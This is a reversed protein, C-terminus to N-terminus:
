PTLTSDTNVSGTIEARDELRLAIAREIAERRKASWNALSTELGSRYQEVQGLIEAEGASKEANLMATIESRRKVKFANLEAQLEAEHTAIKAAIVRHIRDLEAELQKKAELADAPTNNNTLDSVSLRLNMNVLSTQYESGLEQQYKLLEQKFEGAKAQIDRNYAANLAASHENLRATLKQTLRFRYNRVSRNLDATRFSEEEGFIRDIEVIQRDFESTEFVPFKWESSATSDFYPLTWHFGTYLRDFQSYGNWDPQNRDIKSYDPLTKPLGKKSGPLHQDIWYLGLAAGSAIGLLLLYLRFKSGQRRAAM